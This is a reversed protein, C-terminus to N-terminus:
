SEWAKPLVGKATKDAADKAAKKAEERRRLKEALEDLRALMDNFVEDSTQVFSLRVNHSKLIWELNRPEQGASKAKM